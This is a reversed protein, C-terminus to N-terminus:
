RVEYAQLNKIFQISVDVDKGVFYPEDEIVLTRVNNEEFNFVKLDTM